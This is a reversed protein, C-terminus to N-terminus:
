LFKLLPKEEPHLVGELQEQTVWEFSEIREHKYSKNIQVELSYEKTRYVLCQISAGNERHRWDTVKTTGVLLPKPVVSVVLKEKTKRQLCADFDHDKDPSFYGGVFRGKGKAGRYKLILFKGDEDSIINRVQNLTLTPMLLQQETKGILYDTTINKAKTVRKRIETASVGPIEQVFLVPFKGHPTYHRGFGDRSHFLAVKDVQLNPNQATTGILKDLIDSWDDNEEQNPLMVISYKRDSFGLRIIAEELKIRRDEFSLPNKKSPFSPDAALFFLVNDGQSFMETILKDHGEHPGLPSHIRAVTAVVDFVKVKGTLEPLTDLFESIAKWDVEPDFGAKDDIIVSKYHKKTFDAHAAFQELPNENVYDFLIDNEKFFTQYKVVDDEKSSTWLIRKADKRRTLKQLCEPADNFMIRPIDGTGSYNPKMITGHIDIDWYWHDWGREKAKEYEFRITKIIPREELNSKTKM